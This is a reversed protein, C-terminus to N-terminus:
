KLVKGSRSLRKMGLKEAGTALFVECEKTVVWEFTRLDGANAKRQLHGLRSLRHTARAAQSSGMRLDKEIQTPTLRGGSSQLHMLIQLETENLKLTHKLKRKYRRVNRLHILNKRLVELPTVHM